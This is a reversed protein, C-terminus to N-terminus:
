YISMIAIDLFPLTKITKMLGNLTQTATEVCSLIELTNNKSKTQRLIDFLLDLDESSEFSDQYSMLCKFKDKELLYKDRFYRNKFRFSGWDDSEIVIIKRSTSWGLQNRFTNKLGSIIKNM